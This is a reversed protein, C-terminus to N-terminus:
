EITYLETGRGGQVEMRNGMDYVINSIVYEGDNIFVEILHDSVYVSLSCGERLDPTHCLLHGRGEPFLGRRDTYIQMGKRMIHYGGIDLQGGNELETHVVYERGEAEEPTFIPKCFREKVNPHLSFYIHEGRRRVVRPYCFMGIWEGLVPEPMRMWAIMTRRGAEDINTQPAYLDLGYDVFQIDQALELEGTQESFLAPMCVAQQEEKGDEMQLGIPSFLFVGGGETEFYDPCEWLWGFRDDCVRNLLTFHELDESRYVLLMGKKRQLTSGLILYWGDQGRWVKPDRTDGCDGFMEDVIKPIVVQKGGFNDFTMGDTSVLKLQSAEMEGPICEHINRPNVQRYHVGTYFLHMQGEKEVASGSFCGDRDEKVTPFLAIPLHKWNVLDQSVAHGWHMMGWRLDYPFYQYFLHYQGRYYLFGNPDNIWNKPSQLHLTQKMRRNVEKERANEGATRKEINGKKTGKKWYM